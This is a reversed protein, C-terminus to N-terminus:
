EPPDERWAEPSINAFLYRGQDAFRNIHLKIIKQVVAPYSDPYREMVKVFTQRSITMLVVDTWARASFFWNFEALTALEGFYNISDAELLQLHFRRGKHRQFIDVKGSVILFLRDCRTDQSVITEGQAYVERKALYAFMETVGAPAGSFMPLRNLFEQRDTINSLGNPDFNQEPLTM